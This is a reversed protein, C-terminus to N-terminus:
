LTKWQRCTNPKKSTNKRFPMAKNTATHGHTAEDQIKFHGGVGAFYEEEEEGGEEAASHVTHVNRHLSHPLM